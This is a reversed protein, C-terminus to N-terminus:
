RNPQSIGPNAQSGLIGRISSRFAISWRYLVSIEQLLDSFVGAPKEPQTHSWIPVATVSGSVYYGALSWIHWRQTLLNSSPGPLPKHRQNCTTTTPLTSSWLTPGLAVAISVCICKPIAHTIRKKGDHRTFHFISCPTACRSGPFNLVHHTVRDLLHVGSASRSRSSTRSANNHFSGLSCSNTQIHQVLRAPARDRPQAPMSLTSSSLRM